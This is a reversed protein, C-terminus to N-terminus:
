KDYEGRLQSIVLQSDCRHELNMVSLEKALRLGLLMAEYEAKNNSAAFAFKVAQSISLGELSQLVMNAGGEVAKSSGDTELIWLTKGVDHHRVNSMEVMFDTLVQGKIASRPCYVIDFESLESVWKLIRGSADLKHLITTIPYSTLVIITHAQFYPCLKKTAMRLALAIREITETGTLMKSVFYVPRQKGDGDSRILAVSVTTALAALYLYLKEGKIPQSLTLHSSLYEKM